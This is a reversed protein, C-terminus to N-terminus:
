DLEVLRDALELQHLALEGVHIRRHVGAARVHVRDRLRAVAALRRALVRGARDEVGGLLRRPHRALRDLREAAVAVDVVVRGSPEPAIRLEVLDAGARALDPPHQDAALKEVLRFLPAARAAAELLLLAMNFSGITITPAARVGIPPKWPSKADSLALSRPATAILAATSRAPNFGASTCSTIM